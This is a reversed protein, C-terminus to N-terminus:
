RALVVLFMDKPIQWKHFAFKTLAKNQYEHLNTAPYLPTSKHKREQGQKARSQCLFLSM